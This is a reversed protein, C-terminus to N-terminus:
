PVYVLVYHDKQYKYFGQNCSQNIRKLLQFDRDIQNSELNKSDPFVAFPFYKSKKELQKLNEFKHGYFLSKDRKFDWIDYNSGITCGFRELIEYDSVNYFTLDPHWYLKTDSNLPLYMYLDRAIQSQKILLIKNQYKKAQLDKLLHIEEKTYLRVNISNPWNLALSSLIVIIMFQPMFKNYIKQPAVEKLIILVSLAVIINVAYRFHSEM